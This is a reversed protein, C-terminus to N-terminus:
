SIEIKEGLFKPEVGIYFDIFMKVRALYERIQTRFGYHQGVDKANFGIIHMGLRDGIYIARENHFKQSVVIATDQDFIEKLRKMSDFNRFGAYDLYIHNSDIGSAILDYRMDSAEDYDKSGNDGSVIIRSIRSSMYLSTAAEIRYKYYLNISGNSLYKSTGLLLGVKTRPIKEVEDFVSDKANSQVLDNTYIVLGISSVLMIFFIRFLKRRM